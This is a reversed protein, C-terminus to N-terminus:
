LIPGSLRIDHETVAYFWENMAKYVEPDKSERKRKRNVPASKNDNIKEWQESIFKENQKL